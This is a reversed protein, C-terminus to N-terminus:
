SAIRLVVNRGRRTYRLEDDGIATVQGGDLTEGVRVTVVRGNSLRVLARRSSSTGMVGLLNIQRLDIARAQTAERAVSASSPIAPADPVAARATQVPDPQQAPAAAAAPQANRLTRQVIASFQSPRAGPRLSAAVALDTANAFSASQLTDAEPLDAALATPRAAPRLATLSIGGLSPATLAAEDGAGTEDSAPEPAEPAPPVPETADPAIEEPQPQPAIGEPRVPPTAAPRGSTVSIVLASEDLPDVPTAQAEQESTAQALAQAIADVEPAAELEPALGEPRVPPVVAPAGDSVTIELAEEGAPLADATQGLPAADGDLDLEPAADQPAAGRLPALPESGFPAPAAPPAPLPTAEQPALLAVSRLGAIRGSQMEQGGPATTDPAQAVPGESIAGAAPADLPAQQAADEVGLAAEIDELPTALEAPATIEPDLAINQAPDDALQLGAPQTAMFYAAWN